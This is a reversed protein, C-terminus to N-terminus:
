LKTVFAMGTSELRLRYRGLAVGTKVSYLTAGRRGVHVGTSGACALNARHHRRVCRDCGLNVM